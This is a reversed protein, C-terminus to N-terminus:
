RQVAQLFNEARRSALEAQEQQQTTRYFQGGEGQPICSLLERIIGLALDLVQEPAALNGNSGKVPQKGARRIGRKRAASKNSM